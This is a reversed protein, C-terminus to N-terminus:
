QHWGVRNLFKLPRRPGDWGVHRPRRTKSGMRKFLRVFLPTSVQVAETTIHRNEDEAEAARLRGGTHHHEAAGWGTHWTHSASLTRAIPDLDFRAISCAVVRQPTPQELLPLPAHTADISRDTSLRVVGPRSRISCHALLFVMQTKIGDVLPCTPVVPRAPLWGCGSASASASFASRGVSMWVQTM